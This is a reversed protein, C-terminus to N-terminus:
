SPKRGWTSKKDSLSKCTVCLPLASHIFLTREYRHWSQGQLSDSKKKFKLLKANHTSRCAIATGNRSSKYHNNQQWFSHNLQLQLSCNGGIDSSHPNSFLNSEFCSQPHERLHYICVYASICIPGLVRKGLGTGQYSHILLKGEESKM